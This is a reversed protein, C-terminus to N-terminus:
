EVPTSSQYSLNTILGELSTFWRMLKLTLSRAETTKVTANTDTYSFGEVAANAMGSCIVSCLGLLLSKNIQM